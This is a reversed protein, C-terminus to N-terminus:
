PRTLLLRFRWSTRFVERIMYMLVPVPIHRSSQAISKPKEPQRNVANCMDNHSFHSEGTCSPISLAFFLTDFARLMPLFAKARIEDYRTDMLESAQWRRAM